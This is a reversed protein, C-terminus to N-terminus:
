FSPVLNEEAKAYDEKAHEAERETNQEQRFEIHEAVIVVRAVAKGESNQWREQKLRGVVRVGGGKRGRNGANEATKGWAEVDFFSVEKELGSYDFLSFSIRSLM